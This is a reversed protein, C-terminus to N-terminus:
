HVKHNKILLEALDTNGDNKFRLLSSDLGLVLIDGFITMQSLSMTHRGLLLSCVM